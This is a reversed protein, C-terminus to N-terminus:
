AGFREVLLRHRLGRDSVTLSERRLKGLVTRVICAGALIVEARKPQLGVIGRRGDASRTRFCEILRDLEEVTLEVGRVVNPDYTVLEHKVAALNTVAGGMGVVADPTPRDDLAQLDDAIAELAEALRDEAVAEHLGFRETYRVAGVEVSFRDDVRDGRGFTFQTSGGGTEFVLLSGEVTGLDPIAALFSLRAEEEASIVELELGCREAVAALLDASNAAARLGATGVAAVDEAGQLWAENAMGAIAEITRAMPEPGLRGTHAVGEGLRTVESRDILERRTGDGAREALLFKVSNTGVDIVADRRPGLGLLRKLGRPVSINPLPRVGLERLTALVRDHDESEVAITRMDRGQVHADTLEAMCGSVTFRRRTKRVEVAHLDPCAAVVEDLLEALTYAQRTLPVDVGLEALAAELRSATAPFPDKAIPIWQELGEDSVQVLRKVDLLGDRVKVSADSGVSLVYTEDSEEVSNPALDDLHRQAADIGGGLGRWEWRGVTM